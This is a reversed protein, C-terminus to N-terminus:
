SQGCKLPYVPMYMRLIHPQDCQILKARVNDRAAAAQAQQSISGEGDAPRSPCVGDNSKFTIFPQLTGLGTGAANRSGAGM